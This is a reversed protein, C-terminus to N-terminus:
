LGYLITRAVEVDPAHGTMDGSAARYYQTRVNRYYLVADIEVFAGPLQTPLPIEVVVSGQAPVVRAFPIRTASTLEHRYLVTGDAQAIDMGLRAADPPLLGTSDPGGYRAIVNKSSDIAQLEVWPERIDTVGTPFAHGAGLNMVTVHALDNKYYAAIQIAASLRGGLATAFSQEGFQQAMYVNGGPASHDHLGTGDDPMHCDVCTTPGAAANQLLTSGDLGGFGLSPGAESGGALPLGGGGTAAFPSSQWEGLTDIAVMGTGPVFQQHCGACFGPTKLYSLQAGARQVHAQTWDYAATEMDSNGGARILRDVEHCARCTIGRGSSLSSDGLRLSVPDHCGACQHSYQKGRLQQEVGMGYKVMTDKASHAHASQQWAQYEPMHCKGCWDADYTPDPMGSSLLWAPGSPLDRAIVRAIRTAMQTADATPASPDVQGDRHAGTRDPALGGQDLLTVLIDHPDFSPDTPTPATSFMDKLGVHGIQADQKPDLASLAEFFRANTSVFGDLHCGGCSM